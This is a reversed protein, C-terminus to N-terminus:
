EEGDENESSLDYKELNIEPHEELYQLLELQEGNFEMYYNTKGRETICYIQTCACPIILRGTISDYIGYREAGITSVYKKVVIGKVGTGDELEIDILLVKEADDIETIMDADPDNKDISNRDLNKPICGIATYEAELMLGKHIDYIGYKGADEAVIMTDYPIYNLDDTKINFEELIENTIGISDYEVFVIEKGNRNLVGYKEDESVLYLGLRDSLVSISEYNNKIDIVIEGNANLIGVKRGDSVLFEKVNQSFVIRSYQAPINYANKDYLGVVGYSDDRGIVVMMGYALARLNEYEGSIRSFGYEPAKVTALSILYNFDYIYLSNNNYSWTSNCIDNICKLPIYVIGNREIVPLAMTTTECYGSESLVTIGTWSPDLSTAPKIYKKLENSGITLAAVEYDNQIYVGDSSQAFSGYTGKQYRYGLFQSTLTEAAVYQEGNETILFSDPNSLQIQGDNIFLKFTKADKAQLIFLLIILVVLIVVCAVISTLITKRRKYQQEEEPTMRRFENM